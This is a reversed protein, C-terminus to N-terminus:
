KVKKGKTFKGYVKNGNSNVRYARAKFYYDKKAKLNKIKFKLKQVNKNKYKKFKKSTSYRIQYGDANKVKRLKITIKKRNKSRTAKLIKTKGLKVSQEKITPTVPKDTTKDKDNGSTSTTPNETPIELLKNAVGEIKADSVTITAKSDSSQYEGGIKAGMLIIFDVRGAYKKDITVEKSFKYERGAEVTICQNLFIDEEQDEGIVKVLINKTVDTKIKMSCKYTNGPIYDVDQITASVSQPAIGVGDIYATYEASNTSIGRGKAVVPNFYLSWPGKYQIVNRYETEQNTDDEPTTPIGSGSSSGHDSDKRSVRVYDVEMTAPMASSDITHGPWQGGIALNLIIFQEKRFEGMNGDTIDQTYFVTGDVTWKMTEENWEIGYVHWDTRDFDTPVIGENNDGSDRQGGDYWHLAGHTFSQTNIAEMIDIEGCRPWGVDDYNGGLMWFAPWAGQFSPLKIRAEIKGYKFEAKGRTNLRGSTYSKGSYSKRLARIKLTGSSVEINERSDVYYQHEQNGGGDGNVEVNWITRDLETGDFNDEWIVQYEDSAHVITANDAYYYLNGIILTLAIINIVLKRLIKKM